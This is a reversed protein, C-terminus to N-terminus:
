KNLKNGCKSCFKEKEKYQKGCNTCFVINKEIEKEVAKKEADEKITKVSIELMNIAAEIEIITAKLEEKEEESANEYYCAKGYELLLKDLNNKNEAIEWELKVVESVDGFFEKAQDVKESAVNMAKDAVEKAKKLIENM